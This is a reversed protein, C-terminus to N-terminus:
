LLIKDFHILEQGFRNFYKTDKEVVDPPECYSGDTSLHFCFGCCYIDQLCKKRHHIQIEKM